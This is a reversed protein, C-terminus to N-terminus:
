KLGSVYAIARDLTGKKWINQGAFEKLLEVGGRFYLQRWLWPPKHNKMKHYEVLEKITMDKIKKKVVATRTMTDYMITKLDIEEAEKKPYIFGCFPCMMYSALIMRCCGQIGNKDTMVRGTKSDTGCDKIPAVGDESSTDDHWLSWFQPSTYHGLRSANDGFDLINFHSKGFSPRSGRGIMQFWLTTSLTARNVIVTEIAPCDFGTTLISANILVDFEKRNFQDIIQTRTGSWKGYSDLYLQYLRIKEEYRTWAGQEADKDPEKPNGMKSVVFKAEIGNKRFEECTQIAHPINVCFILTHTNPAVELWNKVVGAYLKPSNFRSFMDSESYDGKKADYKISNLDAGTVGFYDDSVLYGRKVLEKVSITEIIEEYDLALQRMKGSRQPTATFGIVKKKDLFGTEFLYNFDQKHSEDIIFLDIDRMLWKSWLDLKIRNRLTQCMAVYVTQKFNIFKTGARIFFPKVGFQELTGGTQTLLEIRDTLVMVKKGKLAANEAIYSFIVTKGSGTPSQLIVHLGGKAFFRRIANAATSQYDRLKIM